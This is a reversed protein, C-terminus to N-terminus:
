TSSVHQTGPVTGPQITGLWCYGPRHLRPSPIAVWLSVFLVFRWHSNGERINAVDAAAADAEVADAADDAADAGYTSIDGHSRQLM